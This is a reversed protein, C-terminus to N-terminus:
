RLWYHRTSLPLMACVAFNLAVCFALLATATLEDPVLRLASFEEGTVKQALLDGLIFGFFSTFAKTMIPNAEVRETYWTM